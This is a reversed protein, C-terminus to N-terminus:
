SYIILGHEISEFLHLDITDISIINFENIYITEGPQKTVKQASAPRGGGRSARKKPRGLNSSSASSSISDDTM